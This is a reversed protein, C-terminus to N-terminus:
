NTEMFYRNWVGGRNVVEIRFTGSWRPTFVVVCNDSLDNDCAILNGNEDYVYLDLDTSGDGIVRIAATEGARFTMHYVDTHRANVVDTHAVPYFAGAHAAAGMLAQGTVVVALFLVRRMATEKIM